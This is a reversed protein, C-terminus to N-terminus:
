SADREDGGLKLPWRGHKSLHAKFADICERTLTLGRQLALAELQAKLAAPVEVYITAKHPPEEAQRRKKNRVL